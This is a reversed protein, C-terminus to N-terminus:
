FFLCVFLLMFVFHTVRFHTWVGTLYTMGTVVANQRLKIVCWLCVRAHWCYWCICWRPCQENWWLCSFKVLMSIISGSSSCSRCCTMIRNSCLSSCVFIFLHGHHVIVSITIPTTCIMHVSHIGILCKLNEGCWNTIIKWRIHLTFFLLDICWVSWERAVRRVHWTMTSQRLQRCPGFIVTCSRMSFRM